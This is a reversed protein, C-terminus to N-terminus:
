KGEGFKAHIKSQPGRRLGTEGSLATLNGGDHMTDTRSDYWALHGDGGHYALGVYVKGDSAALLAAWNGDMAELGPFVRHGVRVAAVDAGWASASILFACVTVGVHNAM